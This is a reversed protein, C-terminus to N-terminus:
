QMEDQLRVLWDEINGEAKVGEVLQITEEDGKFLQTIETILRRDQEDFSVRHIADFLM